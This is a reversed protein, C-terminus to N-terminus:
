IHSLNAVFSLIIKIEPDGKRWKGLETKCIHVDCRSSEVRKKTAVHKTKKQEKVRYTRYTNQTTAILIIYPINYNYHEM